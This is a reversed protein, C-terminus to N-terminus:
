SYPFSGLMGKFSDHQPPWMQLVFETKDTAAAARLKHAIREGAARYALLLAALVLPAEM